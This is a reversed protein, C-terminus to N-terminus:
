NIHRHQRFTEFDDTVAHQKLAAYFDIKDQVVQLHEQEQQIKAELERKKTRLLEQRQSITADGQARWTVYQKMEYLSFGAGKLHQLFQYWLVDQDTYLRQGHVKQVTLLGEKEYFRLTYPTTQVVKAFEGIRYTKTM